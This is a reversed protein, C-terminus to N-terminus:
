IGNNSKYGILGLTVKLHWILKYKTKWKSDFKGKVKFFYKWKQVRVNAM